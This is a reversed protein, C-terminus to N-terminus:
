LDPVAERELEAGRGDGVLGDVRDPEVAVERVVADLDDRGRHEGGGSSSSSSSSTRAMLDGSRDGRRRPPKESRSIITEQTIDTPRTERRPRIIAAKSRPAASTIARQSRAWSASRAM